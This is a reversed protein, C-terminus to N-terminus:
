EKGIRFSYTMCTVLSNFFPPPLHTHTCPAVLPVKYSSNSWFNDDIEDIKEAKLEAGLRAM